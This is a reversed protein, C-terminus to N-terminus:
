GRTEACEVGRSLLLAFGTLGEQRVSSFSTGSTLLWGPIEDWTHLLILALTCTEEQEGKAASFRSFM